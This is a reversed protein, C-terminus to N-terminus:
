DERGGDIVSLHAVFRRGHFPARREKPPTGLGIEPRNSLFPAERAMDLFRIGTTSFGSLPDHGIWYPPDIVAISGFLRDLSGSPGLMPLMLAEARLVRGGASLGDLGLVVPLGGAASGAARMAYRRGEFLWLGALPTAKLERGMLNCIATGALRFSFGGATDRECIYVHPLVPAIDAPEIETRSPAPRDGRRANWYTLLALSTKHRMHDTGGNETGRRSLNGRM